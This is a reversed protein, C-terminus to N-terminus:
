LNDIVRQLKAQIELAIEGLDQNEIAQMSARPDVAAVEINEGKQQVIVNCPLMAGIRDEAQLAKFAYPFWAGSLKPLQWLLAFIGAGIMVGMGLVVTGVLTLSNKKYASM